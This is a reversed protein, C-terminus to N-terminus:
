KSATDNSFQQPNRENYLTRQFNKYALDYSWDLGNAIDWPTPKDFMDAFVAMVPQPNIQDDLITRPIYRYQIQPPPCYANSKVYGIIMFTIGIFLLLFVISKM